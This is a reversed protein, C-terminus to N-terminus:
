SGLPESLGAPESVIRCGVSFFYTLEASLAHNENLHTMCGLSTSLPFDKCLPFDKGVCGLSQASCPIEAAFAV